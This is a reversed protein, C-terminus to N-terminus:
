LVPSGAIATTTVYLGVALITISTVAPAWAVIRSFVSSRPTREMWRSAYVLGLGIGGLVIAMGAGFAVVLVVGYAARGVALTALLIILANISPVLGGFLGLAFLSRWTMPASTAPAHSHAVGGHSHAMSDAHDHAAVTEHTHPLDAGRPHPYAHSHHDDHDHRARTARAGSRAALYTRIMPLGQRVFLWGGISIVVLGSLIGTVHTFSEPTVIHLALIVGALALVGLTHSVTVTLGLALAHRATGRTGVLYAAMLTKGHGPTLAHAAGLAMATLISLILVPLTLETTSLLASIETGVGGPVAAAVGSQQGVPLPECGYGRSTAGPATSLPFADPICPSGVSPGGPSVTFTTDTMALPAALLSAPYSTLRRSVGAAPDTAAGAPAVSDSVGPQNGVLSPVPAGDSGITIGDGSVVIERWGIRDPTSHDVFQVVTGATVPRDLTARYECVTRFTALGAAGVPFSLGAATVSLDLPRGGVALTLAESLRACVSQREREMESTSITGD